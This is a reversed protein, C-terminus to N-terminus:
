DIEHKDKFKVRSNKKSGKNKEAKRKKTVMKKKEKSSMKSAVSKPRCVPYKGKDADDRGCEPHSGEQNKRSIDVWNGKKGKGFWKDLDERLNLNNFQKVIFCKDDKVYVLCNSTGRVALDIEFVEIKSIDTLVYCRNGKWIAPFLGKTENSVINVSEDVTKYKGGYSKYTRVYCGSRYASTKKGYSKNCKRKAAGYKRKDTPVRKSDEKIKKM